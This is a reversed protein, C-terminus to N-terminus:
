PRDELKGRFTVLEDAIINVDFALPARGELRLEIRHPGETLDLREFTGDFDDVRGALAGDVYVQAEKPKVKLRLQGIADRRVTYGGSGGYYGSGGYPDGWGSGWWFPDYYFYGLGVGGYGWYYAPNDWWYGPDWAGGGGGGGGYPPRPQATGITTRDGRPRSGRSVASGRGTSGSTSSRDRGGSTSQITDTGGSSTTAPGGWSGGSDGGRPVATGV